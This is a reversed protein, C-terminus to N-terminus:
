TLWPFLAFYSKLLISLLFLIHKHFVFAGSVTMKQPIYGKYRVKVKASSRSRPVLLHMNILYAKMGFILRTLIYILKPTIPFINLKWTLNTCVSPCCYFLIGGIKRYLPMFIVIVQGRFPKIHRLIKM